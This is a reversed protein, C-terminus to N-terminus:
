CLEFKESIQDFRNNQSLDNKTLLKVPLFSESEEFGRIARCYTGVREKFFYIENHINAIKKKKKM